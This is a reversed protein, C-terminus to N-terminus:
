FQLYSLKEFTDLNFTTIGEKTVMYFHDNVWVFRAGFYFNDKSIFSETRKFFGNGESYGYVFLRTKAYNDTAIFAIINKNPDVMIAKHDESAESWEAPVSSLHLETVDSPDSVDFMSIKLGTVSGQETASKGFGFLRGKGYTHLYESFGPIKLESLIQPNTPDKLDVTFLPDVQRFTVFYGVAGDFRVSYVREGVALDEIQGIQNLNKDLVYLANKSTSEVSSVFNNTKVNKTVDVTTVIRLNNEYEDMSFQNLPTGSVTGTAETKIKGGNLSLKVITTETKYEINEDEESKGHKSFTYFLNENNCYVNQAGGLIATNDIIEGDKLNISSIVLYSPTEFDDIVCIKSELIATNDVCPVYTEAKDKEISNNITHNSLLYVKDGIMRATNYYGNQTIEKVTKINEKDSVDLIMIKVNAGFSTYRYNELIVALRNENVFLGSITQGNTALLKKAVIVPNGGNSDTIILYGDKVSYIYKGDNKVLDAEDVGQVQNNTTSSGKLNDTGADNAQGAGPEATGTAAEADDRALSGTLFAIGGLIDTAYNHEYNKKMFSNISTYITDYTLNKMLTTEGVYQKVPAPNKAILTVGLALVLSLAVAIVVNFNMKRPQSNELVKAKIYRKTQEDVVIKENDKIYKEEFM